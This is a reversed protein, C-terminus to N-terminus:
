GIGVAISAQSLNPPKLYKSSSECSLPFYLDRNQISVPGDKFIITYFNDKPTEEAAKSVEDAGCSISALHCVVIPRASYM